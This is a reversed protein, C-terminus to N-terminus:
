PIEPRSRRNRIVNGAADGCIKAPIRSARDSAIMRMTMLSITAEVFPIPKKTSCDCRENAIGSIHDPM